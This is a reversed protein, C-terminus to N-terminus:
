AKCRVIYQLAMKIAVMEGLLISERNTVSQKLMVPEGAGPPFM